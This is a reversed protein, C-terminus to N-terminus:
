KEVARIEKSLDKDLDATAFTGGTPLTMEFKRITQLQVTLQTSEMGLVHGGTKRDDSIFHLHWGPLNMDRFYEPFRFGVMTGHVDTLEFVQQQKVVDTLPPYPPKQKPVSRLKLKKFTGDIRAAYILNKSGTRSDLLSQMQAFDFPQTLNRIVLQPEFSVVNAFPTTTKPNRVISGDARAQYVTGNLLILEGELDNFTGIGLSGYRSLDRCPIQGEYAGRMLAQLTSIQRLTPETQCGILAVALALTVSAALRLRMKQM